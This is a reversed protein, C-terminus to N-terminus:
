RAQPAGLGLIAARLRPLSALRRLYEAEHQGAKARILSVIARRESAPWSQLDAILALVPALRELALRESRDWAQWNLVGLRGALQATLRELGMHSSLAGARHTIRRTKFDQVSLDLDNELSLFMGARSLTELTKRSSRYGSQQKIRLFERTALRCLGDDKPRCGLRYYFWFARSEIGEPNNHGIDWRSIHIARIGLHQHLFAVYRHFIFVAESQRFTEFISIGGGGEIWDFLLAADGYGVPVGNKLILFGFLARLPLRYEPLVGLWAIQIGRGLDAVLADQPNACNFAHTERHRVALATRALAILETAEVSTLARVTVPEGPLGHPLEV